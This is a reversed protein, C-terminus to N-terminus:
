ATTLSPESKASRRRMKKRFLAQRTVRVTGYGDRGRSVSSRPRAASPVSQTASMPSLLRLRVVIASHFSAGRV